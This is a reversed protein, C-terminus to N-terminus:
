KKEKDQFEFKSKEVEVEVKNKDEDYDGDEHEDDNDYKVVIAFDYIQYIFVVMIPLLVFFLFGVRTQLFSFYNGLNHYRSTYKGIVKDSHVATNYQDDITYLASFDDKQMTKIVDSCIIYKDEYVAYYYIVDGIGLDSSNKIILLDGQKTDIINHVDNSDISAFVYDGIQTYGFKNKALLVTTLCIVYIIVFVEFINWIVRLVRRM